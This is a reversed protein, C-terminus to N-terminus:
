AQRGALPWRAFSLHPVALPGLRQPPWPSAQRSRAGRRARRKVGASARSSSAPLTARRSRPAPLVVGAGRAAARMREDHLRRAEQKVAAARQEGLEFRFPRRKDIVAARGRSDADGHRQGKAPRLLLRGMGDDAPATACRGTRYAQETADGVAHGLAAEAVERAFNTRDGAFDRFSSVSATSRSARPVSGPWSPECTRIVSPGIRLHRIPSCSTATARCATSCSSWGVPCRRVRHERRQKTREPPLVWLGADLDLEGWTAGLIESLRGATLVVTTLAAAPLDAEAALKAMFAPVQDYPMAPHNRVPKIKDPPAYADNFSWGAPNDGRVLGRDHAWKWVACTRGLIRKATAPTSRPSRISSATFIAKGSPMSRRADGIVPLVDRELTM